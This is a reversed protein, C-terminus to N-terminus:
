LRRAVRDRAEQHFFSPATLGDDQHFAPVPQGLMRTFLQCDQPPGKVQAPRGLGGKYEVIGAPNHGGHRINFSNGLARPM